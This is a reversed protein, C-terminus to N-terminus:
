PDPKIGSRAGTKETAEAEEDFDEAWERLQDKIEQRSAIRLLDRCRQAMARLHEAHM